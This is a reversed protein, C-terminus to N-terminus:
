VSITPSLLDIAINQNTLPNAFARLNLLSISLHQSNLPIVRDPTPDITIINTTLSVTASQNLLGRYINMIQVVEKPLNQTCPAANQKKYIINRGLLNGLTEAIELVMFYENNDMMIKQIIIDGRELNDDFRTFLQIPLIDYFFVSKSIAQPILVNTRLRDIPIEGPIDIIMSTVFHDVITVEQDKYKNMAVKLLIVKADTGSLSVMYDFMKRKLKSTAQSIKDFASL